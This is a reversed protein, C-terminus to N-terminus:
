ALGEEKKEDACPECGRLNGAAPLCGWETDAAACGALFGTTWAWQLNFGGCPGDADLLEGALYLGPVLRSELTDEKVEALDIGGATVQAEVWGKTGTITLKYEKLLGAAETLPDKHRGSAVKSLAEALKAPLFASLLTEVATCLDAAAVSESLLDEEAATLKRLRNLLEERSLDPVLDLVAEYTHDETDAVLRSLDFICIGSLVGQGFQIEGRSFGAEKGDRLLTVKGLARVGKLSGLYPDEQTLQVLAPHPRVVTHGLTRLWRYGDGQSGTRIGAKGGPALIVKHAWLVDGTESVLRFAAEPNQPGGSAGGSKGDAAGQEVSKVAFGYHWEAGLEETRRVLLDRLVAAQGHFPYVRGEEEERCFLGLGEFFKLTEAPTIKALIDKALLPEKSGYQAALAWTNTVNCRGNGTVALKKGGEKNRELVALRVPKKEARYACLAALAAAIGAAGGGVVIVDYFKNKM